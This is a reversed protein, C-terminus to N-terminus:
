CRQRVNTKSQLAMSLDSAEGGREDVEMDADDPHSQGAKGEDESVAASHMAEQIYEEDAAQEEEIADEIAAIVQAGVEERQEKTAHAREVKDVKADKVAQKEAAIASIEARSRKKM